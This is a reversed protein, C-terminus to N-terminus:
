DYTDKGVVDYVNFLNHQISKLNSINSDLEDLTKDSYDIEFSTDYNIKNDFNTTGKLCYCMIDFPTILAKTQLATSGEYPPERYM